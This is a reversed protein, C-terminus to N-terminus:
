NTATAQKEIQVDIQGIFEELAEDATPCVDPNVEGRIEELRSKMAGLFENDAYM